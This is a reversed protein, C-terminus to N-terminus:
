WRCSWGLPVGKLTLYFHHSLVTRVAVAFMYMDFGIPNSRRWFVNFTCGAVMAISYFVQPVVFGLGIANWNPIYGYYKKPIWYHKAVVTIVSAIGLAIATYGSSPPVAPYM